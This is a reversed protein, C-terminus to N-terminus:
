RRQYPDVYVDDISWAGGLLPKFRFAVPTREGPLLALLNALVTMPLTPRWRSSPTVIGIPLRAVDGLATEFLVDVQLLSLGLTGGNRRKAFFRLTPHTLGVCIAPSTASSGAPLSLSSADDPGGVQFTENGAAVGAGGRLRWGAAASEFDGSALPTYRAFDLWPVFPSSLPQADCPPASRVLVGANASAASLSLACLALVTTSGIRQKLRRSLM